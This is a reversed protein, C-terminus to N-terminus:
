QGTCDCAVLQEPLVRVHLYLCSVHVLLDTAMGRTICDRVLKFKEVQTSWDQLDLCEREHGYRSNYVDFKCEALFLGLEPAMPTSLDVCPDLALEIADEPATGRFVAVALGVMKRIQNLLFSQGHVQMRVWRAAMTGSGITFVGTCLFSLINRCLKRATCM